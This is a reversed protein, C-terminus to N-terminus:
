NSGSSDACEVCISADAADAEADHTRGCLTCRQRTEEAYHRDARSKVEEWNLGLLDALHNLDDLLDGMATDIGDEESLGTELMFQLLAVRAWGARKLNFGVLPSAQRRAVM